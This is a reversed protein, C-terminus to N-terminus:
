GKAAKKAFLRVLRRAERPDDPADIGAARLIKAAAAAADEKGIGRDGFWHAVDHLLWDRGVASKRGVNNFSSALELRTRKLLVSAEVVEGDLRRRVEHFSEGRTTFSVDKIRMATVPPLNQMRQRLQDALELTEAVFAMEEAISPILQQSETALYRGLRWSFFEDFAAVEIQTSVCALAEHVKDPLPARTIRAAYRAAKEADMKAVAGVRKAKITM